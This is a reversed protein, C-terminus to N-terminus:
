PATGQTAAPTDLRVLQNDHIAHTVPDASQVVRTERVLIWRMALDEVYQEAETATAFRLGNGSWKGSSDTIVEPAYSM